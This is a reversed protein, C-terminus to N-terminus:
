FASKLCKQVGQQPCAVGCLEFLATHIMNMHMVAIKSRPNCHYGGPQQTNTEAQGEMSRVQEPIVDIDIRLQLSAAEAHGDRIVIAVINKLVKWGDIRCLNNHRPEANVHGCADFKDPPTPCAAGELQQCNSSQMIHFVVRKQHTRTSLQAVVSASKFAFNSSFSRLPFMKFQEDSLTAQLAINAQKAM